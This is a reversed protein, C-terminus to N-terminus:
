PQVGAANDPMAEWVADGLSVALESPEVVRGGRLSAPEVGQLIVVIDSNRPMMECAMECFEKTKTEGPQAQFDDLRMVYVTPVDADRLRRIQKKGFRRGWEKEPEIRTKTLSTALDYGARSYVEVYHEAGDLEFSMDALKESGPIEPDIRKVGFSKEIAVLAVMEMKASDWSENAKKAYACAHGACIDMAQRCLDDVAKMYAGVHPKERSKFQISLMQVLSNAGTVLEEDTRLLGAIHPYGGLWPWFEPDKLKSEHGLRVRSVYDVLSHYKDLSDNVQVDLSREQLATKMLELMRGEYPGIAEDFERDRQHRLRIGKLVELLLDEMVHTDAFVERPQSELLELLSQYELRDILWAANRRLSETDTGQAEGAGARAAAAGGPYATRVAGRRRRRSLDNPSARTEAGNGRAREGNRDGYLVEWIALVAVGALVLEYWKM